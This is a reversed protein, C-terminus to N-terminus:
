NSPVTCTAICARRLYTNICTFHVLALSSFFVSMLPILTPLKIALFLFNTRSFFRTSTTCNHQYRKNCCLLQESSPSLACGSGCMPCVPSYRVHEMKSFILPNYTHRITQFIHYAAELLNFNLSSCAATLISFSKNDYNLACQYDFNQVHCHLIQVDVWIDKYTRKIHKVQEGYIM